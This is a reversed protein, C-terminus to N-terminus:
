PQEMFWLLEGFPVHKSFETHHLYLPQMQPQRVAWCM